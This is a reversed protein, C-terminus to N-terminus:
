YKITHIHTHARVHAYLTCKYTHAESVITAIHTPIHFRSLLEHLDQLCVPGNGTGAEDISLYQSKLGKMKQM